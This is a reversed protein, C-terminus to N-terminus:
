PQGWVFQLLHGDPDAALLAQSFGLPASPVAVLGPSVLDTHAAALAKEAAGADRVRLETQWAVLDNSRM